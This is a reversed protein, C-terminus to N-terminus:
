GARGRGLRYWVPARRPKRLAARDFGTHGATSWGAGRRAPEVVQQLAREAAQEAAGWVLAARTAATRHAGSWRAPQLIQKLAPEAAQQAAGRGTARQAAAEAVQELLELLVSEAVNRVGPDAPSRVLIDRGIIEGARDSNVDDIHQCGAKAQRTVLHRGAQPLLQGLHDVLERRVAAQWSRFLRRAPHSAYSARSVITVPPCLPTSRAASSTAISSPM